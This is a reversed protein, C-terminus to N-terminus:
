RCDTGSSTARNMHSGGPESDPTNGTCTMSYRSDELRYQYKLSSDTRPIGLSQLDALSLIGLMVQSQVGSQPDSMVQSVSEGEPERRDPSGAGPLGDPSRERGADPGGPGSPFGPGQASVLGRPQLVCLPCM